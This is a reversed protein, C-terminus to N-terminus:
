NVWQNHQRDREREKNDQEKQRKEDAQKRDYEADNMRKTLSKFGVEMASTRLGNAWALSIQHLQGKLTGNNAPRVLTMSKCNEDAATNIAEKTNMALREYALTLEDKSFLKEAEKIHKRCAAFMGQILM